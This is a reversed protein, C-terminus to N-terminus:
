ISPFWNSLETGPNSSSRLRSLPHVEHVGSTFGTLSPRHVVRVRGRRAPGPRPRPRPRPTTHHPMALRPAARGAPCATCLLVHRAPTTRRSTSLHSSCKATLLMLVSFLRQCYHSSFWVLLQREDFSKIVDLNTSGSAGGRRYLGGRGGRM